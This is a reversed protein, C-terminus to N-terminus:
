SVVEGFGAPSEVVKGGEKHASANPGAPGVAPTSRVLAPSATYGVLPSFAQRRRDTRHRVVGVGNVHLAAALCAM